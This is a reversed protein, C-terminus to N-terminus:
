SDHQRVTRDVMDAFSQLYIGHPSFATSARDHFKRWHDRLNPNSREYPVSEKWVRAVDAELIGLETMLTICEYLDMAADAFHARRANGFDLSRYPSM